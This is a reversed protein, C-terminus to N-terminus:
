FAKADTAICEEARSVYREWCLKAVSKCKARAHSFALYDEFSSTFKYRKHSLKKFRILRILERSFWAPFQSPAVYRTPVFEEIAYNVHQYFLKVSEDVSLENIMRDWDISFLYENISAYDARNFDKRLLSSSFPNSNHMIPISIDLPPHYKDPSICPEISNSIRLNKLTSFILDLLYNDRSCLNLQHLGLFNFYNRITDAQKVVPCHGIPIHALLGDTSNFIRTHSLNYDGILVIDSGANGSCLEEVSSGHLEYVNSDTGPPLYVAGVIISKFELYVKVFLQEVSQEQTSVQRSSIHKRIAILVGGGRKFTINNTYRDRRYVNFDELGLEANLIGSHLWTEVLIIIDYNTSLSAIACRLESLKSRLGRVNQYYIIPHNSLKKKTDGSNILSTLEQWLRDLHARQKETRDQVIKVPGVYKFKHKLIELVEQKSSLTVRVPRVRDPTKRGIRMCGKIIAGEPNIVALVDKALEKDTLSSSGQSTSSTSFSSLTEELNFLIINSARREREMIELLIEEEDVAKVPTDRVLGFEEIKEEIISVRKAIKSVSARLVEMEERYMKVIEGRFKDFEDRILPQIKGLLFEDKSPSKQCNKTKCDVFQGNNFQHGTRQLCAPHSITNCVHM